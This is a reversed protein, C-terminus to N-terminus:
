MTELSGIITSSWCVLQLFSTWCVCQAPCARVPVEMSKNETSYRGDNEGMGQVVRSNDLDLVLVNSSKSLM